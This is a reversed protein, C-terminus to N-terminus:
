LIRIAEYQFSNRWGRDTNTANQLGEVAICHLAWCVHLRFEHGHTADSRMCCQTQSFIIHMGKPYVYSLTTLIQLRITSSPDHIHVGLSCKV